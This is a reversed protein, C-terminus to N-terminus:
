YVIKLLHVGSTHKELWGMSIFFFYCVYMISWVIWLLYTGIFIQTPVSHWKIHSLEAFLIYFNLRWAELKLRLVIVGLHADFVLLLCCIKMDSKVIGLALISLWVSGFHCTIEIQCATCTQITPNVRNRKDHNEHCNKWVM